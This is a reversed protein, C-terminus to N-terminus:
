KWADPNISYPRNTKISEYAKLACITARAGASIGISFKKELVAANIFAKILGKHGKDPAPLPFGNAAHEGVTDKQARVSFSRRYYESMSNESFEGINKIGDPFHKIFNGEPGDYRIEYFSDLVLTRNSCFVEMCEKPYCLGGKGGCIVTAISEDSFKMILVNDTELPGTCYIEVPESELFWSLMDFIHCCEQLLHGGGNNMDFIYHPRIRHDDVIRYYINAPGKKYDQFLKKSEIVSPAFRRNFGVGVNIGSKKVASIVKETEDMTMTMPKEVYVHKGAKAAELIFYAHMKSRTGILVINIEPDRFIKDADCTIYEAHYENQRRALLKEDLDCLTRLKVEPLELINPLHHRAM